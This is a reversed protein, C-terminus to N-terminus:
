RGPNTAAGPSAVPFAPAAPVLDAAADPSSPCQTDNGLFTVAPKTAPAKSWVSVVVGNQCQIIPDPANPEVAPANDDSIELTDPQDDSDCGTALAATAFLGFALSLASRVSLTCHAKM